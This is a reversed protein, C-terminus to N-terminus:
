IAGCLNDKAADQAVKWVEDVDKTKLWTETILRRLEQHQPYGNDIEGNMLDLCEINLLVSLAEKIDNFKSQGILSITHEFKRHTYFHWLEHMATSNANSKKISVYFYKKEPNYPFRGTITLYAIVNDMINLGFVREARKEFENSILDWNKQLSITTKEADLNNEKIYLRVFERVKEKNEIENTYDLLAEYTKTRKGPQNSSGGGKSILCDIDMGEDYIFNIYM